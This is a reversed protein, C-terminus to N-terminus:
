FGQARELLKLAAHRAVTPLRHFQASFPSLCAWLRNAVARWGGSMYLTKGERSVSTLRGLIQEAYVPWDPRYRSDGKTVLAAGKGDRSMGIVRHVTLRDEADQFLVVDGVRVSSLRVPEVQLVDGDRVFPYMSGGHARFRLVNREALIQTALLLFDIRNCTIAGHNIVVCWVVAILPM